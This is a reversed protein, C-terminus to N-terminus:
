HCTYNVPSNCMAGDTDARLAYPNPYGVAVSGSECCLRM